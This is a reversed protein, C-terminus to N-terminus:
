FAGTVTLGLGDGRPSLAIRTVRPGPRPADSRGSDPPALRKGLDANYRQAAAVKGNWGLPDPDITAQAIIVGATGLGALALGTIGAAGIDLSPIGGDGFVDHMFIVAGIFAAGGSLVTALTRDARVDDYEAVLDHRGMALYLDRAETLRVGDKSFGCGPAFVEPPPSADVRGALVPSVRQRLYEATLDTPLVAVRMPEGENVYFTRLLPGFPAYIMVTVTAPEGAKAGAFHRLIWVAEIDRTERQLEVLDADRFDPDVDVEPDPDVLTWRGSAAIAAALASRAHALEPSQEGAAVLAIRTRGPIVLLGLADPDFSREWSDAHAPRPTAVLLTVLAALAARWHTALRDLARKSM